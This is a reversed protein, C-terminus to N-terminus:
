RGLVPDYNRATIDIWNLGLENQEKKGVFGYPHDTGNIVNNYGKHELGFLLVM